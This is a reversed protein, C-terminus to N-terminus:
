FQVAGYLTIPILDSIINSVKAAAPLMQSENGPPFTAPIPYNTYRTAVPRITRSDFGPLICVKQVTWGSGLALGAEQVIPVTDREQPYLPRPTASFVSAM